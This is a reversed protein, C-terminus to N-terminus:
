DCMPREQCVWGTGKEFNCGWHDAGMCEWASFCEAVEPDHCHYGVKQWGCIDWSPSCFKGEGCDADTQCDSFLCEHLCSQGGPGECHMSGSNETKGCNCVATGPCEADEFCQPVHCTCLTEGMGQWADLCRAGDGECEADSTCENEPDVGGPQSPTCTPDLRPELTSECVEAVERHKPVPRTLTGEPMDSGELPLCNHFPRDCEFRLKDGYKACTCVNDPKQGSECGEAPWTCVTGDPLDCKWSQPETLWPHTSPCAPGCPAEEVVVWGQPICTTQFLWFEDPHDPPHAWEMALGCPEFEACSVFQAEGAGPENRWALCAQAEPWGEIAMCAESADCAVEDLGDCSVGCADDHDGAVWGDPVCSDQFRYWANPDDAPHAWTAATMCILAVVEGGEVKEGTWCGAYESEGSTCDDEIPAGFVPFCHYTTECEAQPLGECPQAGCVLDAGEGKAWGQPVCGGSFLRWDEPDGQSYAWTWNGSCVREASSGCVVFSPAKNPEGTVCAQEKPWALYPECEDSAECAEQALASCAGETTEQFNSDGADSPSNGSSSTCASLLAVLMLAAVADLRRSRRRRPIWFVFVILLGLVVLGIPGAAPAVGVSCGSSSSSDGTSELEAEGAGAGTHVDAQEGGGGGGGACGVVPHGWGKPACVRDLCCGGSLGGEPNDCTGPRWWSHELCEWGWDCDDATECSSLSGSAYCEEHYCHLGPETCDSDSECATKPMYCLKIGTEVPGTNPGDCKHCYCPMEEWGPGSDWDACACNDSGWPLLSAGCEEVYDACVKYQPCDADTECKTLGSFFPEEALAGGAFFVGLVVMVLLVLLGNRAEQAAPVARARREM